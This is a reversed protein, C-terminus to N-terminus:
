NDIGEAIDEMKHLNHTRLSKGINTSKVLSFAHAGEQVITSGTKKPNRTEITQRGLFLAQGGPVVNWRAGVGFLAIRDEIYVEERRLLHHDVM